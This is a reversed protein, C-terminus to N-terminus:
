RKQEAKLKKKLAGLEFAKKYGKISTRDYNVFGGLSETLAALKDYEEEGIIPVAWEKPCWMDIVKDRNHKKYYTNWYYVIALTRAKQMVCIYTARKDATGNVQYNYASCWSCGEAIPCWFCEDTSQSRRTIAKLCHICDKECERQGIGNVVDGIVLGPQDTGMSSEMYRLCPYLKGDPDMALM